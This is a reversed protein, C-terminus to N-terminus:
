GSERKRRYAERSSARNRERAADDYAARNSLYMATCRASCNRRRPDSHQFRKGCVACKMAQTAVDPKEFPVYERPALGLTTHLYRHAAQRSVGLAEGIARYTAGEYFMQRATRERTPANEQMPGNYVVIQGM